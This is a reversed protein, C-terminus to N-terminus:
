VMKQIKSVRIAEKYCRQSCFTRHYNLGSLRRVFRAGCHACDCFKVDSRHNFKRQRASAPM